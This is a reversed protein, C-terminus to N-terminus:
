TWKLYIPFTINNSSLLVFPALPCMHRYFCVFNYVLEDFIFYFSMVCTQKPFEKNDTDWEPLSWSWRASYPSALARSICLFYKSWVESFLYVKSYQYRYKIPNILLGNKRDSGLISKSTIYIHLVLCTNWRSIWVGSFLPKEMTKSHKSIRHFM